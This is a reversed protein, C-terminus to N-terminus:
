TGDSAETRRKKIVKVARYGLYTLAGTPLAVKLIGYIMLGTFCVVLTIVSIVGVEDWWPQHYYRGVLSVICGIISLGLGALLGITIWKDVFDSRSLVKKVKTWLTMKKGGFGLETKTEEYNGSQDYVRSGDKKLNFRRVDKSICSVTMTGWAVVLALLLVNVVYRM